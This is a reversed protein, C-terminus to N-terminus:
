SKYKKLQRDSNIVESYKFFNRGGKVIVKLSGKKIWANVTVSTIGFIQCIDKTTLLKEQKEDKMQEKLAALMKEVIIDTLKNLPISSLIFEDM